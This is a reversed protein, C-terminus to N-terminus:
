EVVKFRQDLMKNTCLDVQRMCVFKGRATTGGRDTTEGPLNQNVKDHDLWAEVTSSPAAACRCSCLPQNQANPGLADALVCTVRVRMPVQFTQMRGIQVDLKSYTRLSQVDTVVFAQWSFVVLIIAM